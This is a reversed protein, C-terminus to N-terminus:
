TNSYRGNNEKNLLASSDESIQQVELVSKSKVEIDNLISYLKNKRTGSIENFTERLNDIAEDIKDFKSTFNSWEKNFRQMLEM